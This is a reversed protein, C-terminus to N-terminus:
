ETVQGANRDNCYYQSPERLNNRYGKFGPWNEIKIFNFDSKRDVFQNAVLFPYHIIIVSNNRDISSSTADIIVEGCCKDPYENQLYLECVWVFRPFPTNVYFDLLDTNTKAFEGVRKMKFGKASAMFMRIIIPNDKDSGLLSYDVESVGSAKLAKTANIFGINNDALISTCIDYADSAELFMRKYLPVMLFEVKMQSLKAVDDSYDWHYISYPRKNDDMVIYDDFFDASDIIWFRSGKNAVSYTRLGKLENNVRGHGICVISHKVSDSKSLSIATPIASEIYTHLIRKFKESTEVVKASYLVPSFGDEMFVRSIMHFDLGKTPIRRQFDNRVAISIIDNPLLFRYDQYLRSFYDMMNLITIEACSTTETDQMSYPFANVKLHIGFMTVEYKATRLYVNGTKSKDIIFFPNLLSRGIRRHELPRIVISGIFSNNLTKRPLEFVSDVHNDSFLCGVFAFVRKCYRNVEFHKNSYYTYYSDRYIRDIYYDEVVITMKKNHSLTDWLISLDQCESAESCSDIISKAQELEKDYLEKEYEEPDNIEDPIDIEADYDIDLLFLLIKVLEIPRSVEYQSYLAPTILQDSLATWLDLFRENEWIENEQSEDLGLFEVLYEYLDDETHISLLDKM